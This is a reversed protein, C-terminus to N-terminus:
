KMIDYLADYGDGCRKWLRIKEHGYIHIALIKKTEM